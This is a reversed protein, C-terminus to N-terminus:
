PLLKLSTHVTACEGLAGLLSCGLGLCICNLVAFPLCPFGMGPYRFLYGPTGRLPGPPPIHPPKKSESTLSCNSPSHVATQVGLAGLFSRGVGMRRCNIVAFLFRSFEMEPDRCPCGPSPGSPTYPPTEEISVGNSCNSPNHVATQGGLAGLFSRGVGM